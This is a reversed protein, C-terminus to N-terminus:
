PAETSHRSRAGSCLRELEAVVADVNTASAFFPRGEVRLTSPAEASGTGVVVVPISHGSEAEIRDLADQTGPQSADVVIAAPKQLLARDALAVAPVDVVEFGRDRLAIAISALRSAEHTVYIAPEGERMPLGDSGDVSTM